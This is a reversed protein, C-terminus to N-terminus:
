GRSLDTTECRPLLPAGLIEQARIHTSVYCESIQGAGAIQRNTVKRTRKALRRAHCRMSPQQMVLDLLCFSQQHGRVEYQSVNRQFTAERVLAVKGPCKQTGNAHTGAGPPAYIAASKGGAVCLELAAQDDLSRGM